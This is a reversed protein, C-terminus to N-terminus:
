VMENEVELLKEKENMRRLIESVIGSLVLLDLKENYELYKLLEDNTFDRLSKDQLNMKM